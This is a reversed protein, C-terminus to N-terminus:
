SASPVQDALYAELDEVRIRPSGAGGVHVVPLAGSAVLRRVQRASVGLLRGATEYSVALPPVPAAEGPQYGLDVAPRAPGTNDQETMAVIGALVVPMKHGDDRCRRALLALAQRLAFIEHDGLLAVLLRPM